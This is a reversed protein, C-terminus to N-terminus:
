GVVKLGFHEIGKEFLEPKDFKAARLHAWIIDELDRPKNYKRRNLAWFNRFSERAKQDDMEVPQVKNKSLFEQQEKALNEKIEEIRTKNEPNRKRGM